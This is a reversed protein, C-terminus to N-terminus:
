GGLKMHTIRGVFLLIVCSTYIRIWLYLWKGNFRKLSRPPTLLLHGAPGTDSTGVKNWLRDYNKEQDTNIEYGRWRPNHQFYFCLKTVKNTHVSSNSCLREFGHGQPPILTPNLTFHILSSLRGSLAPWFGSNGDLCNNVDQWSQM